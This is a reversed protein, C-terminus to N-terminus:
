KAAAELKAIDMKKMQMLAAGVKPATAPDSMLKGLQQPIIQWWVGFQDCCWGCMSEKGEATIKDWYRDIEQQDLCEVVNSMGETFTFPQPVGRDMAAFVNGDYRMQAHTIQGAFEGEPYRMIGEISSDYFLEAYFNIAAEAKGQHEGCFMWTTVFKQQRVDSLKGFAIQWSIGYKDQVWGYLESWDYKDLSMLVQGQESLTQWVKTVEDKDEIVVFFSTAPTPKFQPGGNLVMFKQGSLEFTVVMPTDATIKGNGFTACYFEAAEKGKGDMWICPYIHNNM